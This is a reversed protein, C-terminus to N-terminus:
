TSFEPTYPLPLLIILVAKTKDRSDTDPTEVSENPKMEYSTYYNIYRKRWFVILLTQCISKLTHANFLRRRTLSVAAKHRAESINIKKIFM